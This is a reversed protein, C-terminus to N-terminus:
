SEDKGYSRELAKKFADNIDFNGYKPKEAETRPRARGGDKHKASEETRRREAVDAAVVINGFVLRRKFAVRQGFGTVDVLAVATVTKGVVGTQFDVSEPACGSDM